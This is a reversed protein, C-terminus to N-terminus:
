KLPLYVETLLDCEDVEHAFNLYQFFCPYDRLSENTTSLWDRYLYYVSRELTSHSGEHRIVACRGGPIHGKEVGYNNVPVDGTISGGVDWVFDETPTTKPDSYPIGFTKSTAIPSLGTNKRWTIFQAATEFVKQPCGKHRAFAIPTDPFQIIRVPM